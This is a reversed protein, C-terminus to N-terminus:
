SYICRKSQKKRQSSPPLVLGNHRGEKQSSKAQELDREAQVFWDKSREAM